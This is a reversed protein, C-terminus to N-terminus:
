FRSRTAYRDLELIRAQLAFFWPGILLLFLQSLLLDFLMRPWMRGIVPSGVSLIVALAIYLGFNTLLAIVVQTTPHEAPIRHRAKHVLAHAVAFLLLHTGFPVPTNADCFLGALVTILLGGRAPLRLASFVLYLAGVFLNLHWIALYHNIQSVVAWLLLLSLCTLLWQRKM